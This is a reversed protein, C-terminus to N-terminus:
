ATQTKFKKRWAFFGIVALITFIIYLIASLTYGGQYYLYVCAIDIVIWYFWNERVKRILMFTTTLSFVTIFADLYPNQQNTFYDFLSGLIIVLAGTLGINILHYKVPWQKIEQNEQEQDLLAPEHAYKSKQSRWTYWGVIGMIVYFLQLISELYLQAILCLFVFLGSSVIAFIWCWNSRLAALIVYTIGSLVAILEIIGRAIVMQYTNEFDSM